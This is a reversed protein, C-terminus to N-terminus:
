WYIWKPINELHHIIRILSMVLIGWCHITHIYHICKLNTPFYRGKGDQDSKPKRNLRFFKKPHIIVVVALCLTRLSQCQHCRGAFLHSEDTPAHKWYYALRNLLSFLRMDLASQFHSSTQKLCIIAPLNHLLDCQHFGRKVWRTAPQQRVAPEKTKAGTRQRSGM